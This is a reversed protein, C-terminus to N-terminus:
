KQSDKLTKWQQLVAPKEAWDEPNCTESFAVDIEITGNIANVRPVGYVKEGLEPHHNSVFEWFDILDIEIMAEGVFM